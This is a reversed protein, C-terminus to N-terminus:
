SFVAKTQSDFGKGRSSIACSVADGSFHRGLVRSVPPMTLSLIVFFSVGPQSDRILVVDSDVHGRILALQSGDFSWAFNAIHESPFNTILRGPSGDLPQLWLNDVDHDRVPYVVAKNDNTFRLRGSPTRQFEIM